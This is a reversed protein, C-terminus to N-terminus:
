IRSRSVLWPRFLLFATQVGYATLLRQAVLERNVLFVILFFIQIAYRNVGFGEAIGNADGGYIFPGISLNLADLLLALLTVYYIVARLFVNRIRAFKRSGFLLMYGTALTIINASSSIFGWKIGTRGVVPTNYTVELGFPRVHFAEYEGYSMAVIAHTGEHIFALLIAAFIFSVWKNL